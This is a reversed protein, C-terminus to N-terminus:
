ICLLQELLCSSQCGPLIISWFAMEGLVHIGLWVGTIQFGISFFCHVSGDKIYINKDTEWVLM